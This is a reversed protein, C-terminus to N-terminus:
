RRFIDHKEFYAIVIMWPLRCIAEFLFAAGPPMFWCLYLGGLLGSAAFVLLPELPYLIFVLFVVDFVSAAFVPTAVAALTQGTLQTVAMMGAFLLYACFFITLLLRVWHRNYLNYMAPYGLISAAGPLWGRRWEFLLPISFASIPFMGAGIILLHLPKHFISYTPPGALFMGRTMPIVIWAFVFFAAALPVLRLPLRVHYESFDPEAVERTRLYERITDTSSKKSRNISLLGQRIGWTFLGGLILAGVKEADAAKLLILDSAAKRLERARRDERGGASDIFNVALLGADNKAFRKIEEAMLDVRYLDLDLRSASFTENEPKDHYAGSQSAFVVRGEAGAEKMVDCIKKRLGIDAVDSIMFFLFSPRAMAYSAATRFLEVAKGTGLVGCAYKMPYEAIFYIGSRDCEDMFDQHPPYDSCCIVNMGTEKVAQIDKKAAWKPVAAGYPPFHESRSVGRLTLLEGCANVKGGKLYIDSYGTTFEGSIRMEGCVAQAAVRYLVPNEPTWKKISDAPLQFCAAASGSFGSVIQVGNFISKGDTGATVQVSVAIPFEIGEGKMEITVSPNSEYDMCSLRAGSFWMGDRIELFMERFMGAGFIPALGRERGPSSGSKLPEIVILLEDPTEKESRRTLEIEFPLYGFVPGGAADGNLYVHGSGGFGRGCLFIRKGPSAQTIDIKRRFYLKRIRKNLGRVTALDSPAKIPTWDVGRWHFEWDGDLRMRDPRRDDCPSYKMNAIEEFSPEEGSWLRWIVYILAPSLLIPYVYHFYSLSAVAIIAIITGFIKKAM